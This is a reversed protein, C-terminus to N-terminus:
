NRIINKDIYRALIDIEINVNDGKRLNGLTTIKCTHPILNISFKDKKVDNVTLSVGDLTVSGKKCVFKNLDKPLSFYMLVSKNLIKKEKVYVIADVHGTVIHGGLEDGVRLSRELNINTGEKWDKATTLKLTEESINISFTNIKKKIVTLCIGSCMISSGIRAKKLDMKTKITYEIPEKTSIKSITGINESIGTFM